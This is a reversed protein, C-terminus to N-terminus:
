RLTSNRRVHHVHSGFIAFGFSIDRGSHLRSSVRPISSKRFMANQLRSRCILLWDITRPKTDFLQLHDHSSEPARFVIQQRPAITASFEYTHPKLLHIRPLLSHVLVMTSAARPLHLTTPILLCGLFTRKHVLFGFESVLVSIYRCPASSIVYKRPTM